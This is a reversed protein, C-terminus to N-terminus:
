RAGLGWQNIKMTCPHAPYLVQSLGMEHNQQSVVESELMVTVVKVKLVFVISFMFCDWCSSKGM